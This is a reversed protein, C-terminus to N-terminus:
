KKESVGIWPKGGPRTLPGGKILTPKVKSFPKSVNKAAKKGASASRSRSKSKSKPRITIPEPMMEAPFMHKDPNSSFSLQDQRFSVKKQNLNM